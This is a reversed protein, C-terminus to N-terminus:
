RDLEAWPRSPLPRPSRFAAKAEAEPAGGNATPSPVPVDGSGQPGLDKGPLGRISLALVLHRSAEPSSRASGYSHILFMRLGPHTGDDTREVRLRARDGSPLDVPALAEGGPSLATWEESWRGLAVMLGWEAAYFAANGDLTARGVRIAQVSIWHGAAIWTAVLLVTVLVVPLAVGDSQASFRSM